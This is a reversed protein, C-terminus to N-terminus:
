LRESFEVGQEVTVWTLFIEAINVMVPLVFRFIVEQNFSLIFDFSSFIVKVM